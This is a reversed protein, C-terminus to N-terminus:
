AEGMFPLQYSPIHVLIAEPPCKPRGGSLEHAEPAFSHEIFSDRARTPNGEIGGSHLPSKGTFVRGQPM